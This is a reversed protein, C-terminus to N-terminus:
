KTKRQKEARRVRLEGAIYWTAYRKLRANEAKLRKVEALLELVRQRATM